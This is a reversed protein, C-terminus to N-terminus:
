RMKGCQNSNKKWEHNTLLIKELKQRDIDNQKAKLKVRDYQLVM